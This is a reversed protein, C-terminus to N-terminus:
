STRDSIQLDTAGLFSGVFPTLCETGFSPVAHRTWPRGVNGKQRQPVGRIRGHRHKGRRSKQSDKSRTDDYYGRDFAQQRGIREGERDRGTACRLPHNMQLYRHDIGADYSRILPQKTGCDVDRRVATRSLAADAAPWDAGAIEP